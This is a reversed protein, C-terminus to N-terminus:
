SASGCGPRARRRSCRASRRSAACSTTWSASGAPRWIARQRDGAAGAGGPRPAPRPRRRPRSGARRRRRRRASPREPARRPARRSPAPRRRRSPARCAPEGPRAGARAAAGRRSACGPKRRRSAGSCRRSRAPSPGARPACPPSRSSSARTRRSACPRTPTSSRACCTSSITSRPRRASRECSTPRPTRCTPWSPPRRRRAARARPAAARHRRAHVRRPGRGRAAARDIAELAPTTDHGVLAPAFARVEARRRRAWCPRRRRPRWGATATPSRPTSCRCRTACRARPARARDGAARRARVRHRRKRLIGELTAALLDPAIPRFDFRQVRSLITAPLDRPDTTALVMVVHPPPEELTKLLADFADATLQHVEDIIYVKYRGRAPAYKVNERLTRIDEIRRNSAADIEIIDVSAAADACAPCVGCPEARGQAGSVAARARAAARDDDQRHRAPRRLSLRARHAGVGARQPAYAHDRGPRRGDDFTAPRYKRALVQYTM